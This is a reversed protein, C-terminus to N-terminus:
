EPIFLVADAFVFGDAGTNSIEVYVRKGTSLRHKGLSIWEGSTQGEVKIAAAKISISKIAAGDYMSVPIVSSIGPLKPIYTYVHYTGSRPLAPSFRIWKPQTGKSSDILMSKGYAGRERRSWAGTLQIHDTDDNDVIVEPIKGNM